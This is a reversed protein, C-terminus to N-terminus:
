KERKSGIARREKERKRKREREEQMEELFFNSGDRSARSSGGAIRERTEQERKRGKEREREREREGGGAAIEKEVEGRENEKIEKGEEVEGVSVRTLTYPSPPLLFIRREPTPVRLPPLSDKEEAHVRARM